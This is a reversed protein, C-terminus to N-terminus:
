IDMIEFRNYKTYSTSVEKNTEIDIIRIDARDIRGKKVLNEIEKVNEKADILTMKKVEKNNIDDSSYTDDDNGVIRKFYSYYKADETIKYRIVYKKVIIM